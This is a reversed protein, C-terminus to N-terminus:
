LIGNQSFQFDDAQYEPNLNLVSEQVKQLIFIENSIHDNKLSPDNIRIPPNEWTDSKFDFETPSLKHALVPKSNKYQFELSDRLVSIQHQFIKNRISISRVLKKRLGNELHSLLIIQSAKAENALESPSLKGAGNDLNLNLKLRMDSVKQTLHKVEHDTRQFDKELIEEESSSLICNQSSESLLKKIVPSIESNAFNSYSNIQSSSQENEFIRSKTSNIRPFANRNEIFKSGLDFHSKNVKLNYPDYNNM